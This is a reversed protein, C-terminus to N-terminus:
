RGMSQQAWSGVSVPDRAVLSDLRSKSKSGGDSLRGSGSSKSAASGEQTKLTM